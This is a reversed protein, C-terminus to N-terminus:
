KVVGNILDTRLHDIFNIMWLGDKPMVIKGNYVYYHFLPLNNTAILEQKFLDNSLIKVCIAKLIKKQFQRTELWDKGGLERGLKKCEFGPLNRLREDKTSLWYWYGEITRFYGDETNVDADSFNSLFRGIATKGKSYINIHSVGDQNIDIM